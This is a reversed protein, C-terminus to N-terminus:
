LTKKLIRGLFVVLVRYIAEVKQLYHPFVMLVVVVEGFSLYEKM